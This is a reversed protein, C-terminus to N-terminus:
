NLMAKNLYECANYQSLNTSKWCELVYQEQETPQGTMTYYLVLVLVILILVGLVYYKKNNKEEM